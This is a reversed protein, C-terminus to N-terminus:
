LNILIPENNKLYDLFSGNITKYNGNDKIGYCEHIHGHLHYKLNKLNKICKLLSTSGVNEKNVYDLTKFAPTHTILVNTDFDIKKFVENLEIENKKVFADKPLDTIWSTGYFKIGEIIISSDQLYNINPYNEKFFNDLENKLYLDYLFYEHNGFILIKHKIPLSSYWNLFDITDEKNESKKSTFDGCHIIIDAENDHLGIGNTSHIDNIIKIKDHLTHTDSTVLIKM